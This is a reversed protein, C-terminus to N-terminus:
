SLKAGFAEDQGNRKMETKNDCRRKKTKTWNSDFHGTSIHEVCDEVMEFEEFDKDEMIFEQLEKEQQQDEVIAGTM